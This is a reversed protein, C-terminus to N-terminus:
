PRERVPLWVTFTSGQGPACDFSVRGGHNAIINHCVTLGLGTGNTKTTYFPEFIKDLDQPAVGTGSDAISVTVWAGEDHIVQGRIEVSGGLPMAEVANLIFNM